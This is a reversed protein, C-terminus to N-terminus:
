RIINCRQYVKVWDVYLSIPMTSSADPNGSWEAGVPLSFRLYFPEHPINESVQHSIKGDVFWRIAHPEWEVAFEHFGDSLDAGRVSGNAMEHDEMTGYHNSFYVVSPDHGLVEAIDIEPPWVERGTTMWFASIM